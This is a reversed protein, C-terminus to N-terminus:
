FKNFLESQGKFVRWDLKDIDCLIDKKISSVNKTDQKQKPKLRLWQLHFTLRTPDKKVRKKKNKLIFDPLQIKLM